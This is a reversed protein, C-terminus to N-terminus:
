FELVGSMLVSVSGVKRAIGAGCGLHLIRLVQARRDRHGTHEGVGGGRSWTVGPGAGEAGEPINSVGVVCAPLRGVVSPM